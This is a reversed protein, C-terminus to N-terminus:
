LIVFRQIHRVVEEPDDLVQILDLDERSINGEALMTNGLWDVLGRWYESGMLIVPFSKIRRTQILTLAEFLEDMTGFGGPIIVYAVAFKVFMVKRIFFYKFNIRINAYPNPVQELPLRINLGISTGGAEA